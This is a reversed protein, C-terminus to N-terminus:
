LLEGGKCRLEHPDMADKVKELSSELVVLLDSLGNIHEPDLSAAIDRAMAKALKHKSPSTLELRALIEATKDECQESLGAAAIIANLDGRVIMLKDFPDHVICFYTAQLGTLILLPDNHPFNDECFKIADALRKEGAEHQIENLLNILRNIKVNTEVEKTIKDIQEEFKTRHKAIIELLSIKEAAEEAAAIVAENIRIIM